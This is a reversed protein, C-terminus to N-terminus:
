VCMMMVRMLQKARPSLLADGTSIVSTIMMNILLHGSKM